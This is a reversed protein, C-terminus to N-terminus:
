CNELTAREDIFLEHTISDTRLVTYDGEYGIVQGGLVLARKGEKQEVCM